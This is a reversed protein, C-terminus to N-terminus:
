WAQVSSTNESQSYWLSQQSYTATLIATPNATQLLEPWQLRMSNNGTCDCVHNDTPLCVCVCVNGYFYNNLVHQKQLSESTTILLMWVWTCVNLKAKTYIRYPYWRIFFSFNYKFFHKKEIKFFFWM